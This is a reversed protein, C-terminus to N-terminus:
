RTTPPRSTPRKCGGAGSLCGMLEPSGMAQALLRQPDFPIVGFTFEDPPEVKASGEGADASATEPASERTASAITPSPTVVEVSKTPPTVPATEPAASARTSSPTEARGPVATASKSPQPESVGGCAVAFLTIMALSFLLLIHKNMIRVEYTEEIITLRPLRLTRPSYSNEPPQRQNARKVRLTTPM